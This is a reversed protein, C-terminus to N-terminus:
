SRQIFQSLMIFQSLEEGLHSIRICHLAGLQVSISPAFFCVEATYVEFLAAQMRLYKRGASCLQYNTMKSLLV